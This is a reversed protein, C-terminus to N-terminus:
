NIKNEKNPYMKNYADISEAYKELFATIKYNPPINLVQRMEEAEIILNEIDERDLEYGKQKRVRKLEKRFHPEKNIGYDLLQLIRKIDSITTIRIGIKHINYQKVKRDYLKKDWNLVAERGGWNNYEIIYDSDEMLSDPILYLYIPFKIKPYYEDIYKNCLVMLKYDESEFFGESEFNSAITIHGITITSAAEITSNTYISILLIFLVTLKKM